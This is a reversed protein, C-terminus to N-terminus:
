FGRRTPTWTCNDFEAFGILVEPQNPRTLRSCGEEAEADAFVGVSAKTISDAADLCLAGGTETIQSQRNGHLDDAVLLLTEGSHNSICVPAADAPLALLSLAGTLFLWSPKM